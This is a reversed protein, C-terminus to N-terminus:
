PNISTCPFRVDNFTTILVAQNESSTFLKRALPTTHQSCFDDHSIHQFGINSPVFNSMLSIRTAHVARQIHSPKLGFLIALIRNSLGTRMKVLFIALCTRISRNVTSRLSSLYTVMNDFQEKLLGTMAFYDDDSMLSPIDFNLNKTKQLMKRLNELLQLIDTRSFLDSYKTSSIMTLAESKFFTKDLHHQCCRNKSDIFIGCEVFAQTQADSTILSLRNRTTGEKRCVICYRHSRPTSPIRLPISKPSRFSPKPTTPKESVHKNTAPSRRFVAYCRNCIIENHQVDRNMCKRLYRKLDPQIVSRRAGPKCRKRCLCCAIEKPM